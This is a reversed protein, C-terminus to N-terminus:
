LNIPKWIPIDLISSKLNPYKSSIYSIINSLTNDIDKNYKENDICHEHKDKTFCYYITKYKDVETSFPLVFDNCTKRIQNIKTLEFWRMYRFSLTSDGFNYKFPAINASSLYVMSSDKITSDFYGSRLFYTTCDRMTKYVMKNIESGEKCNSLKEYPNDTFLIYGCRIVEEHTTPIVTIIDDDSFSQYIGKQTEQFISIPYIEGNLDFGIDYNRIGINDMEISLLRANRYKKGIQHKLYYKKGDLIIKKIPIVACETGDLTYIEEKM